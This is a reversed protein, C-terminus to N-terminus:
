VGTSVTLSVPIVSRHLGVKIFDAPYIPTFFIDVRLIGLAVQSAPNNEEDIKIQQLSDIQRSSEMIYMFNSLSALIRKRLEPSNPESKAFQLASFSNSRIYNYTRRLSIWKWAVDKSLSLGNLCHFSGTVQDPIIVEIRARSYENYALSGVSPIDVASINRFSPSSTRAAPSVHFPTVALHGAYFGDPPVSLPMLDARGTYTAYGAVMVAHKSDLNKTLEKAMGPSLRRDACVVAIRLGTTEDSNEAQAILDNVVQISTNGSAILINVPNQEMVKIAARWDEVSPDPGDTGGGLALPTLIPQIPVSKNQEDDGVYFIHALSSSRTAVVMPYPKSEDLTGPNNLYISYSEDVDNDRYVDRYRLVVSILNDPGPSVSVTLNDSWKGESIAQIRLVDGNIAPEAVFRKTVDTQKTSNLFTGLKIENTLIPDTVSKSDLSYTGNVNKLVIVKDATNDVEISRSDVNLDVGLAFKSNVGLAVEGAAFTIKTKTNSSGEASTANISSRIYKDRRVTIFGASPGSIAGGFRQISSDTFVSFSVSSPDITKTSMELNADKNGTVASRQVLFRSKNGLEPDEIRTRIFMTSPSTLVPETQFGLKRASISESLKYILNPMNTVGAETVVDAGIMVHIRCSSNNASAGPDVKFKLAIQGGNLRVTESTSASATLMDQGNTGSVDNPTNGYKISIGHSTDPQDTTYNSIFIKIPLDQFKQAEIRVVDNNVTVSADAFRGNFANAFNRAIVDQKTVGNGVFPIVFCTGFLTIKENSDIAPQDAPLTFKVYAGANIGSGMVRVVGFDNAGQDMATQMAISGNHDKTKGYKKPFIERDVLEFKNRPGKLFRGIVGIRNGAVPVIERAGVDSEDFSINPFVLIDAM